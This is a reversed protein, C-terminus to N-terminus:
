NIVPSLVQAFKAPGRIHPDSLERNLWLQARFAHTATRCLAESVDVKQRGDSIYM